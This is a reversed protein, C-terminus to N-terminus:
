WDIAVIEAGMSLAQKVLSSRKRNLNSTLASRELVGQRWDVDRLMDSLEQKLKFIGEELGLGSAIVAAASKACGRIQKMLHDYRVRKVKHPLIGLCDGFRFFASSLKQWFGKLKWRTQNSDTTSVDCVRLWDCSCYRWIDALSNLLDNVSNVGMRKLFGRRCQFETRTVPTEGNWGKSQWLPLFWEKQTVKIEATKDYIRALLDGSGISYGLNKRGSVYQSIPATYNAKNRARTVFESVIDLKPLPLASDMCLDARSVRESTVVAWSSLWRKFATTAKEVGVAWLYASRYTVYVEPMVSGGRMDKAIAVTLDSNTLLYEYGKAGRPSVMFDAGSFTVPSGKSDFLSSSGAAAKALALPELSVGERLGDISYGIVLTDIGSTLIEL